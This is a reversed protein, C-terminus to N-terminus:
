TRSLDTSIPPPSSGQSLSTGVEYRFAELGHLRPSASDLKGYHFLISSACPTQTCEQRRAHGVLDWEMNM